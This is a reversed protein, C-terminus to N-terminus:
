PRAQKIAARASQIADVTRKLDNDDFHEMIRELAALLADRQRELKHAHEELQEFPEQMPEGHANAEFQRAISYMVATTEPTEPQSM